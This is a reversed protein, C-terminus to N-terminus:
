KQLNKRCVKQVKKSIRGQVRVMLILPTNKLLCAKFIQVLSM